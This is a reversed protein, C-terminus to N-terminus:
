AKKRLKASAQLDTFQKFMADLWGRLAIAKDLDMVISAEVERVFADRELRYQMPGLGGDKSVSYTESRAIPKRESFVAMHIKGHPTLGGHFGDAHIVRFAPSKLYDFRVTKAPKAKTGIVRRVIATEPSDKTVRKPKKLRSTKRAM